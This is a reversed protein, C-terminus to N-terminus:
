VFPLRYGSLSWCLPGREMGTQQWAQHWCSSAKLTAARQASPCARCESAVFVGPKDDRALSSIMEMYEFMNSHKGVNLYLIRGCGLQALGDSALSSSGSM